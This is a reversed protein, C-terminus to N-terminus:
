AATRELFVSDGFEHTLYAHANLEQDISGLTRDDVFARLLEYHSTGPEHTGSLIADVIRLRSSAGLRQTALGHGSRVTGNFEAAHELARVVTTGIAVVRRGQARAQSIANATSAPIRYPEDFPLLADLEPDGTSSIGAAHTITAFRVGRAALSSLANWDLVFGASPPEFAVLPGAIPTWTDWLALPVPVHSYQIPRGHRALGEWIEGPAGDFELAIFRPHLLLRVVTARLPGLALRDGPQVAPPLPRDETRMRFDGLGLLVASFRKVRDLALSAGGALRVEIRRGSPMHRGSLSGPLTAADNAIVLDGAQLLQVFESRAWHEIRGRRDVVLLRAQPHRQVPVSAAIM